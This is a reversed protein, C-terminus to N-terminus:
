DLVGTNENTDVTEGITEFVDVVLGKIENVVRIDLVDDPEGVDVLVLVDELVPVDEILEEFDPLEV